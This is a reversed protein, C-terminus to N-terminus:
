NKSALWENLQSQKDSIIDDIKRNKLESIFEAYTSGPGTYTGDSGKSGAGVSLRGAYQKIKVNINTITTTKRGANYVFGLAPSTNALATATFETDKERIFNRKELTESIAEDESAWYYYMSKDGYFGGVTYRAGKTVGEPVTMIGEERPCEETDVVNYHTGEIGYALLNVLYRDSWVLDLFRMAKNPMKSQYNVYWGIAPAGAYYYPETIVFQVFENGNGYDQSYEVSFKADSDVFAGVFKGTRLMDTVTSTSTAADKHMYGAANWKGMWEVYEKYEDTEYLNVIKSKDASAQNERNMMIVGAPTTLASCVPDFPVFYRVLDETGLKGCAYATGGGPASSAEPDAAVAAFIKDLDEYGIKDWEKYQGEGDGYLGVEELIDKRIIYTGGYIYYEEITSLGYAKGDSHRSLLSPNEEIADLLHPANDETILSEIERVKKQTIYSTPNGFSINLLDLQEQAAIKSNYMSDQDTTSIFVFKVGFGLKEKTYASVASEVLGMDTQQTLGSFAMVIDGSADNEIGGTGAGNDPNCGTFLAISMALAMFGCFFRKKM